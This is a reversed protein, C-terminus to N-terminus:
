RLINDIVKFFDLPFAAGVVDAGDEHGEHGDIGTVDLVGEVRVGVGLPTHLEGLDVAPNALLIVVYVQLWIEVILCALLHVGAEGDVSQVRIYPTLHEHPFDDVHILLQEALLFM